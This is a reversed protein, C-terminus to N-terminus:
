LTIAKKVLDHYVPFDIFSSVDLGGSGVDISSPLSTRPAIRNSATNGGAANTSVNRSSVMSVTVLCDLCNGGDEVLLRLHQQLCIAYRTVAM